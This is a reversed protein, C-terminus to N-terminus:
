TNSNLKGEDRMSSRVIYVFYMWSSGYIQTHLLSARPHFVDAFSLAAVRCKL